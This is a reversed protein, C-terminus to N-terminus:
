KFINNGTDINQISYISYFLFLVWYSLISIFYLTNNEPNYQYNFTIPVIIHIIQQIM